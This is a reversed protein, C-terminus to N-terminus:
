GMASRGPLRSPWRAAAHPRCFPCVVCPWVHVYVLPVQLPKCPWPQSLSQPANVAPATVPLLAAGAAGGGGGPRRAHWVCAICCAVAVAVVVVTQLRCSFALLLCSLAAPRRLKM